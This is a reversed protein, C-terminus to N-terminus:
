SEAPVGVDVASKLFVANSASHPVVFAFIEADGVFVILGNEIVEDLQKCSAQMRKGQQVFCGTQLPSAFAEGSLEDYSYPRNERNGTINERARAFGCCSFALAPREVPEQRQPPTTNFLHPMGAVPSTFVNFAENM